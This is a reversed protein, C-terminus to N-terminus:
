TIINVENQSNNDEVSNDILINKLYDNDGYFVYVESKKCHCEARSCYGYSFVGNQFYCKGNCFM